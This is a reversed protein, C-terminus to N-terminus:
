VASLSAPRRGGKCVVVVISNQKLLDLLAVVVSVIRDPLADGSLGLVAHGLQQRHVRFLAHGGLLRQRVRPDDLQATARGLVTRTDM